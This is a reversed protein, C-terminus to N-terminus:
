SGFGSPLQQLHVELERRIPPRGSGVHVRLECLLVLNEPSREVYPDPISPLRQSDPFGRRDRGPGNVCKSDASLGYADAVDVAGGEVKLGVDPAQALGGVLAMQAVQAAHSRQELDGNEHPFIGLV